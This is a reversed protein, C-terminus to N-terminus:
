EHEIEWDTLVARLNALARRQLGKISDVSKSLTEAVQVIPLGAIFRLIIVERQEDSLKALAAQLSASTFGRDAETEPDDNATLRTEDLQLHNRHSMMRYYDVVLNHAIQFLWARFSVQGPQYSALYRLMRLFVESTLDEAAQQESVRYYLYRYIGLHYREYLRGLIVPDGKQAQMIQDTNTAELNAAKIMDNDFRSPNM